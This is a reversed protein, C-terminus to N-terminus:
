RLFGGFVLDAWGEWLPLASLGPPPLLPRLPSRGAKLSGEWLQPEPSLRKAVVGESQSSMRVAISPFVWLSFSTPSCLFAHRLEPQLGAAMNSQPAFTPRRVPFRAEEHWFWVVRVLLSYNPSQDPWSVCTLVSRPKLHPLLLYLEVVPFWTAWTSFLSWFQTYYSGMKSDSLCPAWRPSWTSAKFSAAIYILFNLHLLM